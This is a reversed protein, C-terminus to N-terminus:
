AYRPNILIPNKVDIPIVVNHLMAAGLIALFIMQTSYMTALPAAVLTSSNIDRLSENLVPGMSSTFITQQQGWYWAKKRDWEASEQVLDGVERKEDVPWVNLLSCRWGEEREWEITWVVNQKEERDSWDLKTPVNERQPYEIYKRM